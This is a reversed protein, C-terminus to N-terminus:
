SVLGIELRVISFEGNNNVLRERSVLSGSGELENIIAEDDDIYFAIGYQESILGDISENIIDGNNDYTNLVISELITLDPNNEIFYELSPYDAISLEGVTVESFVDLLDESFYYQQQMGSSIIIYSYISVLVVVFLMLAIFADSSFFLGKKLGM